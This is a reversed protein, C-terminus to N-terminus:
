KKKIRVDVVKVGKGVPYVMVPNLDMEEIEPNDIALKSVSILLKEIAAVDSAPVGRSEQLMAFSRIERVMRAAGAESLPAMRFSVDKLTEVHIGGLGFMLVPGVGEERKLGVIIETGQPCQEQVVFNAGPFKSSMTAYADKLETEGAINLAVGGADSKHVVKDSDVKLVAPYKVGAPIKGNTMAITQAAPISYAGLLDFAAAQSIFGDTVGALIKQAKAKDGAAVAPVEALHKRVENYRTM